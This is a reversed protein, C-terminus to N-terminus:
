LPTATHAKRAAAEVTAQAESYDSDKCWGDHFQPTHSPDGTLTCVTSGRLVITMTRWCVLLYPLKQKEECHARLYHQIAEAIKVAVRNRHREDRTKTFSARVRYTTGGLSVTTPGSRLEEPMYRSTTVGDTEIHGISGLLFPARVRAWTGQFAASPIRNPSAPAPAPGNGNPPTRSMADRAFPFARLWACTVTEIEEALTDRGFGAVILTHAAQDCPRRDGGGGVTGPGTRPDDRGGPGANGTARAQAQTAATAAATAARAQATAEQSDKTLRRATTTTDLQLRQFREEWLREQDRLRTEIMDHTEVHMRDNHQQQDHQRQLVKDDLRRVQRDTNEMLARQMEDVRGGLKDHLTITTREAKGLDGTLTSVSREQEELRGHLQLMATRTETQNSTMSAAMQQLADM